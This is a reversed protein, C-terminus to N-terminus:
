RIISQGEWERAAPIQLLQAITPALNVLSLGHLEEGPKFESGVFFMPITMDEPMESGHGRDHGGHDSTVIVTYTDGFTEIVRKVNDIAISICNLYADSMWGNDHGGKEDTEVMYLFVFDPEYDKMARLARDTLITDTQDKAYSHVFEATLLSSPRAVDRLPEWGYFMAATKGANHIQEFLGPFPRVPPTYTNTLIGHRIPPVSHFISMHCPLTVSPIMSSADMTYSGLKKLEEVFPNGCQQLGDPRMGDISILIVKNQM